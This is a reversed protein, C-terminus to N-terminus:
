RTGHRSTVSGVVWEHQGISLGKYINIPDMATPYHHHLGGIRRQVSFSRNNPQPGPHYHWRSQQLFLVVVALGAIIGKGVPGHVVCNIGVGEVSFIMKKWDGGKEVLGEYQMTLVASEERRWYM